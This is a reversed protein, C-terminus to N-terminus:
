NIRGMKDGAHRLQLVQLQAEAVQRDTKLMKVGGGTYRGPTEVQCAGTSKMESGHRNRGTGCALWAHGPTPMGLPCKKPGRGEPMLCHNAATQLRAALSQWCSHLAESTICPASSQVWSLLSQEANNAHRCRQGCAPSKGPHVGTPKQARHRCGNRPRHPMIVATLVLWPFAQRGSSENLGKRGGQRGIM